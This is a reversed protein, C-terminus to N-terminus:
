DHILKLRSEFLRGQHKASDINKSIFVPPPLNQTEADEPLRPGKHLVSFMRM